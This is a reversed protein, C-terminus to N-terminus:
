KFINERNHLLTHTHTCRCSWKDTQCQTHIRTATHMQLPLRACLSHIGARNEPKEFAHILSRGTSQTGRHFGASSLWQSVPVFAQHILDATNVESGMDSLCLWCLGPKGPSCNNSIPELCLLLTTCHKAGESNKHLISHVPIHLLHLSETFSCIHDKYELYYPPKFTLSESLRLPTHTHTHFCSSILSLRGSPYNLPQMLPEWISYKERQGVTGTTEKGKLQVLLCCHLKFLKLSQVKPVTYVTYRHDGVKKTQHVKLSIFVSILLLVAIEKIEKRNENQGNM